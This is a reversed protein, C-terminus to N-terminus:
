NDEFSVEGESAAAAESTAAARENECNVTCPTAQGRLLRSITSVRAEHRTNHVAKIMAPTIESLGPDSDEGPCDTNSPDAIDESSCPAGPPAPIECVAGCVRHCKHFCNSHDECEKAPPCVRCCKETSAAHAADYTGSIPTAKGNYDGTANYADPGKPHLVLDANEHVPHTDDAPVQTSGCDACPKEVTSHHTEVKSRLPAELGTAGTAGTAAGTMGTSGTGGTGGTAADAEARLSVDARGDVNVAPEDHPLRAWEPNPVKADATDKQASVSASLALVALIVITATRM